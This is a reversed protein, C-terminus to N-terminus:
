GPKSVGSFVPIWYVNMKQRQRYRGLTIRAHLVRRPVSPASKAFDGLREETNVYRRRTVM